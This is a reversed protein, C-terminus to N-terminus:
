VSKWQGMMIAADAMNVYGDNNLDASAGTKPGGWQGMMIAADAMNVYGDKNLDASTTAPILKSVESSFVSENNSTDYATISFYYTTNNTLNSITYTTVKGVDVKTSYGCMTCVKPDTGTRATTGYYVKYGALDSETNGSWSLTASGALAPAILVINLLLITGGSLVTKLITKSM